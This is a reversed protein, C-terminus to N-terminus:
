FEYDDAKPQPDQVAIGIDNAFQTDDGLQWPFKGTIVKLIAVAVLFMCTSQILARRMEAWFKQVACRLSSATFM